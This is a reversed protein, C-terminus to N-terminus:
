FLYTPYSFRVTRESDVSCDHVFQEVLLIMKSIGQLERQTYEKKLINNTGELGNNTAISFMSLGLSNAFRHFWGLYTARSMWSKFFKQLAQRVKPTESWKEKWHKVLTRIALTNTLVTSTHSNLLGSLFEACSTARALIRVDEKIEDVADEYIRAKPLEKNLDMTVHAYCMGRYASPLEAHAALTHM